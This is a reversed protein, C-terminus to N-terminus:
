SERVRRKVKYHLDSRSIGLRRAAEAQVGGSQALARDVLTWELDALVLPLDVTPPLSDVYADVGMPKPGSSRSLPFDDPGIVEETALICARELLNRLERVNGPFSYVSLRAMAEEGLVRRPLGMEQAAKILFHTVLLPLDEIHERLAPVRLPFVALRYYLDERFLGEKVREELNRHTAALVRVNVKRTSRSGVRLVEGDVLVRLLKAQLSPPMEGAEDLFLTGGHATEFLGPRARDAGTYAGKEHGFLESELLSEPMAACNLAVFPGDSRSSHSHIARAVLEKGTGTEGSILVTAHTPAVREIGDLLQLMEPSRGLLERGRDARGAADKLRSNERLLGGHALARRVAAKLGDPDFPKAIVDFAGQRMAQVALEVSAYASLMLVPVTEDARRVGELVDLGQGDGLKQDTIVLDPIDRDLSEKAEALSGAEAVSHGEEKLLLSVLRRLNAEDDVLLIRNL